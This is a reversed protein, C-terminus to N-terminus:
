SEKEGDRRHLFEEVTGRTEPDLWDSGARSAHTLQHIIFHSFLGTRFGMLDAMHNVSGKLMSAAFPEARSVELTFARTEQDLQERPVVRNVLGWNMAEEAGIDRGSLVMEKTRRLGIMWALPLLEFSAVGMRGIPDAFRADSAAVIFDCMTSLALGAGVCHGHVQAITPIPADWFRLNKQFYQNWEWPYREEVTAGRFLGGESEPYVGLDHGACFSPGAGRLVVARAGDVSLADSLAQDLQDIMLANLANLKKPRNLTITVIGEELGGLIILDDQSGGTADRNM